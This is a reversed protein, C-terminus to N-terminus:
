IVEGALVRDRHSRYPAMEERGPDAAEALDAMHRDFEATGAAHGDRCEGDFCEPIYFPRDYPDGMQGQRQGARYAYVQLGHQWGRSYHYAYRPDGGWPMSQFLGRLGDAKGTRYAARDSEDQTPESSSQVPAAALALSM